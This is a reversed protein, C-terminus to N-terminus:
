HMMMLFCNEGFYHYVPLCSAIISNGTSTEVKVKVTYVEGSILSPIFFSIVNSGVDFEKDSNSSEGITSYTVTVSSLSLGTSRTIRWAVNIGGNVSDASHCNM